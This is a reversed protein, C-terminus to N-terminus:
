GFSTRSSTKPTETKDDLTKRRIIREETDVQVIKCVSTVNDIIYKGREEVDPCFSQSSQKADHIKEIKEDDEFIETRSEEVIVKLPSTRDHQNDSENSLKYTFPTMQEVHKYMSSIITDKKCLCSRDTTGPLNSLSTIVRSSQDDRLPVAAMVQRISNPSTNVNRIAEGFTQIGIDRTECLRTRCRCTMDEHDKFLYNVMSCKDHVNDCITCICQFLKNELKNVRKRLRSNEQEFFDREARMKDMESSLESLVKGKSSMGNLDTELKRCECKLDSIKKDRARNDMELQQNIDQLNNKSKLLNNIEIEKRNVQTRCDELDNKLLRIQREYEVVLDELQKSKNELENVTEMVVSVQVRTHNSDTQLQHNSTALAYTEKNLQEVEAQLSKSQAEKEELITQCKKVDQLKQENDTQLNKIETEKNEIIMASKDCQDKLDIVRGELNKMDDKLKRMEEELTSIIEDKNKTEEQCQFLLETKTDLQNLLNDKDHNLQKLTNMIDESAYSVRRGPETTGDTTMCPCKPASLQSDRSNRKQYKSTNQCNMLEAEVEMLQAQTDLLANDCQEHLKKLQCYQTQIRQVEGQAANLLNTYMGVKEELSNITVRRIGQAKMLERREGELKNIVNEYEVRQEQFKAYDRNKSESITKIKERLCDTEAELRQIDLRLLDRERETRKCSAKCCKGTPSESDFRPGGEELRSMLCFKDKALVENERQLYEIMQEKKQCAICSLANGEKVFLQKMIPSTLLLLSNEDIFSTKKVQGLIRSFSSYDKSNQGITIEKM